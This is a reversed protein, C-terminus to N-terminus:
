NGSNGYRYGKGKKYKGFKIQKVKNKVASFTRDPLMEKIEAISKKDYWKYVIELESSSWLPKHVINKNEM